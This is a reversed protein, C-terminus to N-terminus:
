KREIIIHFCLGKCTFVDTGGSGVQGGGQMDLRWCHVYATFVRGKHVSTLDLQLDAFM